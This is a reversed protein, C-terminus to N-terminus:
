DDEPTVDVVEGEIMKSEKMATALLEVLGDPIYVVRDGGADARTAKPSTRDTIDRAAAIAREKDDGFSAEGHIRLWAAQRTKEIWEKDTFSKTSELMAAELSVKITAFIDSGRITDAYDESIGASKLADSRGTASWLDFMAVLKYQEFEDVGLVNAFTEWPVCYSLQKLLRASSRQSVKAAELIPHESKQATKPM